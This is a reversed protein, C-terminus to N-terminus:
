KVFASGLNRKMSAVVKKGIAVNIRKELEDKTRDFAPKMFPKGKTKTGDRNTKPYEVLHAHFGKYGGRRRPGVNVQGVEGRKLSIREPGISDALNGTKGVPALLHAAAILPQAAEIHASQLISHSLEKPLNRFVNDIEKWGTVVVSM